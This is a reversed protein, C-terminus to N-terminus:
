QLVGGRTGGNGGRVVELETEPDCDFTTGSPHWTVTPLCDAVMGVVTGLDGPEAHVVSPGSGDSHDVIRVRARVETGVQLSIGVDGNM